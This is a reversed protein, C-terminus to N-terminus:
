YIFSATIKKRHYFNNFVGLCSGEEVIRTKKQNNGNRYRLTIKYEYMSCVLYNATRSRTVVLNENEERDPIFEKFDHLSPNTVIFLLLVGGIGYLMWKLVKM